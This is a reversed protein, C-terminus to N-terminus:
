RGGHAIALVCIARAAHLGAVTDGPLIEMDKTAWPFGKAYNVRREWDPGAVFSMETENKAGAVLEGFTQAEVPAKSLLFAVIVTASCCVEIKTRRAM